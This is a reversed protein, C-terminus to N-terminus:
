LPIMRRHAEHMSRARTLARTDSQRSLFASQIRRYDEVMDPVWGTTILSMSFMPAQGMRSFLSRLKELEAESDFFVDRGQLVHNLKDAFEPSEDTLNEDVLASFSLDESFLAVDHKESSDSPAPLLSLYCAPKSM